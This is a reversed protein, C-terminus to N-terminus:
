VAQGFPLRDLDVNGGSLIIGITQQAFLDPQELIAALPVASSPEVVIKLHQWILRMAKVITEEEVCVIREVHQQLIDFVKPGLVTRLGDAITMIQDNGQLQGSELSRYADDVMSPETGWVKVQPAFYHASLASGSLLGGAGVPTLLLELDPQQEFFEKAATAQGAIVNYNEASSIFVLDKEAILVDTAAQRSQIDAGSDIIHAGYSQTAARKPAPAVNPMVVYAPIDLARAAYAIAQAHNGSSHTVVGKQREEASLATMACAAGRMKFAGVRQFNECKFYLTAQTLENLYANSMVPTHHIYPGIAEAAAEIDTATPSHQLQRM